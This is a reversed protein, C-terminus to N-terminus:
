VRAVGESKPDDIHALAARLREVTGALRVLGRDDAPLPHVLAAEVLSRNVGAAVAAEATEAATARPGLRLRTATSTVAEERLLGAAHGAAGNQAYLNGLGIVLESGPLAVQQEEVVPAGLRRARWWLLACFALLLQLLLAWIRGPVLDLLGAEAEATAFDPPAIAVVEGQRPALLAAALVANDAEGLADNTLFHPGGVSVVTGSGESEAVLWHGEGRGFCGLGDPPTEFTVGQAQVRSVGELAETDCDRGISPDLFGFGTDGVLEPALESGPDAVLLTGGRRAVDRWARRAEDSINDVLLLGSTAEEPPTPGVVVEAGLRELTDALARTGDPATSRPSLPLDDSPPATSLWAAALVAVALGAVLATRKARSRDLGTM